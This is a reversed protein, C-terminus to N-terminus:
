LRKDQRKNKFIVNNLEYKLTAKKFVHLQIDINFINIFYTIIVYKLYNLKFIFISMVFNQQIINNVVQMLDKLYMNM